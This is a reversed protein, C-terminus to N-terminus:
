PRLSAWEHAEAERKRNKFPSQSVSQAKGIKSPGNTKPKLLQLIKSRLMEM